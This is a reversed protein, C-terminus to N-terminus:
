ILVQIKTALGPAAQDEQQQQESATQGNGNNANNSNEAPPQKQQQLQQQAYLFYDIEDDLLMMSEDALGVTTAVVPQFKLPASESTLTQTFSRPIHICTFPIVNTCV